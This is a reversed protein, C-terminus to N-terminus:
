TKHVKILKPMNRRRENCIDFITRSPNDLSKSFRKNSRFLKWRCKFVDKDTEIPFGRGTLKFTCFVM